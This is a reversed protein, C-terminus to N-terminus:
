ACLQDGCAHVLAGAGFFEEEAEVPDVGGGAGSEPLIKEGAEPAKRHSAYGCVGVLSSLKHEGRLLPPQVLPNLQERPRDALVRLQVSIKALELPLSGHSLLHEAILDRPKTIRGSLYHCSYLVLLLPHACPPEGRSPASSYQQASLGFRGGTM